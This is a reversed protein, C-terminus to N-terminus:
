FRLSAVGMALVAVLAVPALVTVESTMQGHSLSALPDATSTKRVELPLTASARIGPDVQAVASLTLACLGEEAPAIRALSVNVRANAPVTANASNLARQREPCGEMSLDYTARRDGPNSVTFNTVVIESPQVLFATDTVELEVDVDAVTVNVGTSVTEVVEGGEDRITGTVAISETSGGAEAPVVVELFVVEVRTFQSLPESANPGAEERTTGNGDSSARPVHFTPEWSSSANSSLDIRDDKEFTGNVVVRIELTEGPGADITSRETSLAIDTVNSIRTYAAPVADATAASRIADGTGDAPAGPGEVLAPGIGVSWAVLVVLAAAALAPEVTGDSARM